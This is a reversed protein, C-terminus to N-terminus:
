PLLVTVEVSSADEGAGVSQISEEEGVLWVAEDFAEPSVLSRLLRRVEESKPVRVQVVNSGVQKAVAGPVPRFRGKVLLEIEPAEERDM